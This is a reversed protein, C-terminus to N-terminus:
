EKNEGAQGALGLILVAFRFAHRRLLPSDQYRLVGIEATPAAPVTPLLELLAGSTVPGTPLVVPLISRASGFDLLGRFEAWTVPRDPKLTNDRYAVTAGAALLTRADAATPDEPATDAFPSAALLESVTVIEYGHAKLIELQRPLADVVPSEKNMNYGNKQSIIAGNLADPDRKLLAEMRGVMSEVSQRYSGAPRWGGADYSAALYLHGSRRYIDYATQGDATRDIYHPPRALRPRRGTLQEVLDDLRKVDAEGAAADALHRRTGYIVRMPGFAVHSYGHNTLEHGSEAMARTMEPQNVVGALSDQGFEPYHDYLVGSWLPGGLRGERDPYNGATTGIVNFTGRAGYRDLTSLLATTLATGDGPRAPSACPGDDFTMAALRKGSVPHVREIRRCRDPTNGALIAQRRKMLRYLKRMPTFFLSLM